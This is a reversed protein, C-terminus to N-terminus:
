DDDEDKIYQSIQGFEKELINVRHKQPPLLAGKKAKERQIAESLMDLYDGPTMTGTKTDNQIKKLETSCFAKNESIENPLPRRPDIKEYLTDILCVLRLYFILVFSGWFQGKEENTLFFESPIQLYDFVEDKNKLATQENKAESNGNSDNDEEEEADNDYFQMLENITNIINQEFENFDELARCPLESLERNIANILSRKYQLESIQGSKISTELMSIKNNIFSLQEELENPVKLEKRQFLLIIKRTQNKYSDLVEHGWFEFLISPEILKYKPPKKNIPLQTIDATVFNEILNMQENLEPDAHGFINQDNLNFEEDVEHQLSSLDDDDKQKDPASM